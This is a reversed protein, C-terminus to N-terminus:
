NYTRDYLLLTYFLLIIIVNLTQLQYYLKYMSGNNQRNTQTKIKGGTIIQTAVNNENASYKISDEYKEVHQKNVIKSDQDELSVHM